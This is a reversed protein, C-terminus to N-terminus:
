QLLSIQSPQDYFLPIVSGRSAMVNEYRTGVIETKGSIRSKAVFVKEMMAKSVGMANIPYVAKDTSLCIVKKVNNLIALDLVNETGLINTKVAQIPHFECSPM